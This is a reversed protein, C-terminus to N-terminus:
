AASRVTFVPRLPPGVLRSAVDDNAIGEKVQEFGLECARFLRALDDDNHSLTLNFTGLWLVGSKLVEQQFLSKLMWDQQGAEDYFMLAPWCPMGQVQARESLGSAALMEDLQNQIAAGQYRIHDIANRDELVRMTALAAALSVAEGGATFSFFVEELLSMIERRGVLASLPYGNAMAKGFCALDPTVGFLHQAGRLDFRFGTVVEDFVLLAGHEHALRKVGELYGPKPSTLAVPELIVAAFEGRHDNLLAELAELDNYPFRSTLDSV